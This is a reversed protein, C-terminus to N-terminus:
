KKQYKALLQIFYILFLNSLNGYNEYRRLLNSFYLKKTNRGVSISNIHM